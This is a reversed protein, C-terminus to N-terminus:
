GAVLHAYFTSRITVQRERGNDWDHDIEDVLTGVLGCIDLTDGRVPLTVTSDFIAKIECEGKDNFYIVIFVNGNTDKIELKDGSDKRSASLIVGIGAGGVSETGFEANQNGVIRYNAPSSM